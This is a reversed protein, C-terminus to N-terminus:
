WPLPILGGSLFFGVPVDSLLQREVAKTLHTDVEEVLEEEQRDVYKGDFPIDYYQQYNFTSPNEINFSIFHGPKM